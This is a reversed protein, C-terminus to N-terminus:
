LVKFKAKDYRDLQKGKLIIDAVNEWASNEDVYVMDFSEDRMLQQFNAEKMAFKVLNYPSLEFFQIKLDTILETDTSIILFKKRHQKIVNQVYSYLKQDNESLLYKDLRSLYLEAFTLTCFSNCNNDKTFYSNRVGASNLSLAWIKSDTITACLDLGEIIRQFLRERALKFGQEFGKFNIKLFDDRLKELKEISKQIQSMEETLNIIRERRVEIREKNPKPKQSEFNIEMRASRLQFQANKLRNKRAEISLLLAQYYCQVPLFTENFIRNINIKKQKDKIDNYSAELRMTTSLISTFQNQNISSDMYLLTDIAKNLFKKLIFYSLVLPPKKELTDMNSKLNDVAVLEDKFYAQIAQPITISLPIHDLTNFDTTRYLQTVYEARKAQEVNELEFDSETRWFDSETFFDGEKFEQYKSPKLSTIRNTSDATFEVYVGVSPISKKYHWSQKNFDFFNKKLDMVTGRGTSDIYVMIKGHM